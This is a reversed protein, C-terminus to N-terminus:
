NGNNALRLHQLLATGVMEIEPEFDTVLRILKQETEDPDRIDDLVLSNMRLFRSYLRSADASKTEFRIRQWDGASAALTVAEILRARADHDSIPGVEANLKLYGSTGDNNARVEVWTIFPYGAWWKECGPFRGKAGDVADRWRAPLFSVLNDSQSSYIFNRNGIRVAKGPRPEAGFVRRVAEPFGWGPSRETVLGLVKRHDRYFRRALKEM